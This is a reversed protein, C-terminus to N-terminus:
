IKKIKLETQNDTDKLFIWYGKGPELYYPETVRQYGSDPVYSYAVVIKGTEIMCAQAVFSCSGILYWGDQVPFDFEEKERGTISYVQPENLLIWYAKGFELDEGAKVRVYGSSKNYGYVVLAGPFIDQVLTRDPIVPLSIMDWGSSLALRVTKGENIPYLSYIIEHITSEDEFQVELFIAPEYELTESSCAYVMSAQIDAIDQIKGLQSKIERPLEKLVQVRNKVSSSENLIFQPWRIEVRFPKGDLTYTAMLRSGLVPIGNVERWIRTHRAIVKAPMETGDPAVDQEGVSTTICNGKEVQQLGINKYIVETLGLAQSDTLSDVEEPVIQPPMIMKWYGNNLDYKVTIARNTDQYVIRGNKRKNYFILGDSVEQTIETYLEIPHDIKFSGQKIEEPVNNITNVDWYPIKKILLEALNLIEQDGNLSSTNQIDGQAAKISTKENTSFSLYILSFLLTVFFVIIKDKSYNHSM